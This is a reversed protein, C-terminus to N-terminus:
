RPQHLRSRDGTLSQGRNTRGLNRRQKAVDPWGTRRGHQHDTARISECRRQRTEDARICAAGRRLQPLNPDRGARQPRNPSIPNGAPGGECRFGLRWSTEVIPVPFPWDEEGVLLFARRTNKPQLSVSNKTRAQIAFEKAIERDATPDASHVIDYSDPGLIDKLAAEDFKEAADILADAALQATAFTRAKATATQARLESSLTLMLLCSVALASCCFPNSYRYNLRVPKMNTKHNM